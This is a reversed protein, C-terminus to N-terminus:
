VAMAGAAAVLSSVVRGMIIFYVLPSTTIIDTTFPTMQLAAAGRRIFRNQLSSHLPGRPGPQAKGSKSFIFSPHRFPRGLLSTIQNGCLPMASLDHRGAKEKGNWPRITARCTLKEFSTGSWNLRKDATAAPSTRRM